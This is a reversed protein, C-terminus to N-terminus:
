VDAMCTAAKRSLAQLLHIAAELRQLSLSRREFLGRFGIFLSMPHLRLDDDFHLEAFPRRIPAEALWDEKPHAVVLIRLFDTEFRQTALFLRRSTTPDGFRAGM